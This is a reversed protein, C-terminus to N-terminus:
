PIAPVCAYKLAPPKLRWLGTETTIHLCGAVRINKLPQSQKFREMLHGLVPMERFAWHIRALGEDALTIDHIDHDM